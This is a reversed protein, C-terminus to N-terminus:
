FWGMVIGHATESLMLRGSFQRHSSSVRSKWFGVNACGCRVAIKDACGVKPVRFNGAWVKAICRFDTRLGNHSNTERAARERLMSFVAPAHDNASGHPLFGAM